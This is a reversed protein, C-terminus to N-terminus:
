KQKQKRPGGRKKPPAAKKSASKAPVDEAVDVDRKKKRGGRPPPPPLPIEPAQQQKRPRGRGRKEPLLRRATSEDPVAAPVTGVGPLELAPNLRERPRVVRGQVGGAANQQEPVTEDAVTPRKYSKSRELVWAVDFPERTEFRKIRDHNIVRGKGGPKDIIRFNVDSLVDLIFYPGEWKDKLKKEGRVSPSFVKLYVPDGEKYAILHSSRDYYKKQIRVNRGITDRAVEYAARMENERRRVYEETSLKEMPPKTPLMLDAGHFIERGKWLYNPTFGTRSHVSANYAAVAQGIMKDWSRPSRSALKAVMDVITRNYREVMGDSSPKFAVTRTKEVDLLKMLDKVLKSEFNTGQDSHIQMPAGHEEVWQHIFIDAITEAKQDKMPFAKAWRSFHDCICLLYQNGDETKHMPGVVDWSVRESPYGTTYITMPAKPTPQPPKRRQCVECTRIWFRIDHFMRYWFFKLQLAHYCRRRGMHAMKSEDHFKRCLERQFRYPVILQLHSKDGEDNEWRRYLMGDHVEIRKWEAIYAKAAPSAGSIENWTPRVGTVVKANYLLMIDPDTRQAAAMEDAEYRPKFQLVDVVYNARGSDEIGHTSELDNVGTCICVKGKCPMRSMADANAHLTGKRVEVEYTYEEMMMVWRHFQAPLDKVTKIYRLSAHDTRITFEQGRLYADYHKVHYVIALLERRRACYFRETDTFRKSNFAIPREVEDGQENKQMQSLVAGMCYDSADTDLIFPADDIPYALIPASIFRQKLTEFAEQQEPGWVFKTNKKMLKAIPTAIQMFNKIFKSYYQTMGMFTQVDKVNRPAAFNKVAEVKAPDTKVGDASIIHGLYNTERQFLSCKSPKLKLGAERVRGFVIRLNEICEGITAGYVIIDDLYALAIKYELGRIIRDMMKQFTRPAGVLGFPMFNYEWHSPNCKPAHFATKQKSEETLEIHHYGQIVDLSCFFKARSLSDLTDDIRPLMYTGKNKTKLNLERYDVCMRWTGDKKRAMVVNSAWESDSPRIIGCDHLKKVQKTLDEAHSKALRRPRQHVPEEGGTDIHHKVGVAQGIDLNDKAFVDDFDYFLKNLAQKEIDDLAKKSADFLEQLHDPVKDYDINNYEDTPLRRLESIREVNEQHVTKVDNAEEEPPLPPEKWARLQDVERLLGLTTGKYIRIPGDCPNFVRVPVRGRKPAVVVKCVVAGTKMFLTRAPELVASRGEISTKGGVTSDIIVETGAPITITRAVGVKHCVRVESRDILKIRKGGIMIKETAPLVETDGAAQLFDYGLIPQIVDDVVCVDFDFQMGQFEFAVAAIGHCHIINNHVQIITETPRLPNRIEDPISDYLQRPLVSVDAGTDIATLAEVDSNTFKMWVYDLRRLNIQKVEIATNEQRKLEIKVVQEQELFKPDPQEDGEQGKHKQGHGERSPAAKRLEAEKKQKVRRKRMRTHSMKLMREPVADAHTTAEDGVVILDQMHEDNRAKIIHKVKGAARQEEQAVGSEKFESPDVQKTPAVQEEPRTLEWRVALDLATKIANKETDRRAVYDRMAVNGRLGHVFYYNGLQRRADESMLAQSLVRQVELAFDHLRQGPIREMLELEDMVDNYPKINGFCIELHEMLSSFTLKKRDLLMIAEQAPGRLASLVQQLKEAESWNQLGAHIVVMQKFLAVNSGDFTLKLRGHGHDAGFTVIPKSDAFNVTSITNATTLLQSNDRVINAYTVDLQRLLADRESASLVGNEATTDATNARRRDVSSHRSDGSVMSSPQDDDVSTCPATQSTTRGSTTLMTTGVTSQQLFQTSSEETSRLSSKKREGEFDDTFREYREYCPPPPPDARMCFAPTSSAPRQLSRRRDSRMDQPTFDLDATTETSVHHVDRKRSIKVRKKKKVSHRPAEVNDADTLVADRVLRTRSRGRGRPASDGRRGTTKERTADRLVDKEAVDSGWSDPVLRRGCFRKTGIGASLPVEGQGNDM